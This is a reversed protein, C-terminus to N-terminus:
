FSWAHEVYSSPEPLPTQAWTSQREEVPEPALEETAWVAERADNGTALSPQTEVVPEPASKETLRIAEWGENLTTLLSFVEALPADAQQLNAEILRRRMYDYLASLRQSIEGGREFDLAASLEFTIECARSISRSREMIRKESLHHRADRVAEICAQYLMNVLEIPDASLVKIELYADHGNNYTDQGSNWM